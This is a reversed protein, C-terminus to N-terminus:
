PLRNYIKKNLAILKAYYRKAKKTTAKFKGIEYAAIRKLIIDKAGSICGAVTVGTVSSSRVRRKVSHLKKSHRVKRVKKAAPKRKGSGIKKFAASVADSYKKYRGTKYLKKAMKAARTFRNTQASM